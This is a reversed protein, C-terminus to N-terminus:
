NYCKKCPTYGLNKAEEKTMKVPNKMDSCGSWEHYKSGSGSGSVYVYEIYPTSNNTSTDESSKDQENQNKAEEIMKDVARQYATSFTDNATDDFLKKPIITFDGYGINGYENITIPEFYADRYSEGVKLKREFEIVYSSEDESIDMLNEETYFKASYLEDVLLIDTINTGDGRDEQGIIVAYCNNQDYSHTYSEDAWLVMSGSALWHLNLLTHGDETNEIELTPIEYMSPYENNRKYGVEVRRNNNSYKVNVDEVFSALEPYKEPEIVDDICIIYLPNEDKEEEQEISLKPEIGLNEEFREKAFTELDNYFSNDKIITSIKFVGFLIVVMLIIIGFIKLKKM